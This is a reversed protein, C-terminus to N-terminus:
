AKIFLVPRSHEKRSNQKKFIEDTLKDVKKMLDQDTLTCKRFTAIKNM